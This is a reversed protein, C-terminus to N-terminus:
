FSFDSMLLVEQNPFKRNIKGINKQLPLGTEESFM